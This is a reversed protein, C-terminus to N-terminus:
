LTKNKENETKSNLNMFLLFVALAMVSLGTVTFGTLPTSGAFPLDFPTKGLFMNKTYDDGPAFSVENWGYGKPPDICKVVYTEESNLAFEVNDWTLTGTTNQKESIQTGDAAFLGFTGGCLKPADETNEEYSESYVNVTITFRPLVDPDDVYFVKENKNEIAYGKVVEPQAKYHEIIDSEFYYSMGYELVAQKEPKAVDGRLSTDEVNNAYLYKVNITVMSSEWKAYLVITTGDTGQVITDDEITKEDETEWGVLRMDKKVARPLSDYEHTTANYGYERGIECTKAAAIEKGSVRDKFTVTVTGPRIRYYVLYTDATDDATGAVTEVIKENGNELKTRRIIEIDVNDRNEAESVAYAIDTSMDYSYGENVSVSLMDISNNGDPVGKSDCSIFHVLVNNAVPTYEVNVVLGHYTKGGYTFDTMDAIVDNTVKGSVVPKDAAFGPKEPSTVSYEAGKTLAIDYVDAKGDKGETYTSREPSLYSEFLPVDDADVYNILLRYTVPKYTGVVIIDEQGM